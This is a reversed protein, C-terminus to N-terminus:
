LGVRNGEDTIKKSGSLATRKPRRGRFRMLMEVSEKTELVTLAVELLRKRNPAVAGKSQWYSTVRLQARGVAVVAIRGSM